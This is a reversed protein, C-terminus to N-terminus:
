EHVFGGEILQVLAVDRSVVGRHVFRADVVFNVTVHLPDPSDAKLRITRLQMSKQNASDIKDVRAADAPDVAVEAGAPVLLPWSRTQGGLVKLVLKAETVVERPDVRVTIAGDAALVAGAAAASRSRWGVDLKEAPGLSDCELRDDKFTVRAEAPTKGGLRV